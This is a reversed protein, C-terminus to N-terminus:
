NQGPLFLNLGGSPKKFDQRSMYETTTNSEPQNSNKESNEDTKIDNNKKKEKDWIENWQSICKRRGEESGDVPFKPWTEGSSTSYDRDRKDTRIRERKQYREYASLSTLHDELWKPTEMFHAFNCFKGRKCEQQMYDRCRANEFDTIPSYKAKVKLGAYFRDTVSKLCQAAQEEDAYKVFTNGIMHDGTNQMTMTELVDGHKVCEEMLDELFNEYHNKLKKKNAIIRKNPIWIHEFLLTNSFSPWNHKKPCNDGHRCAGIRLFFSCNTPDQETGYLSAKSKKKDDYGGYGGYGNYNSRGQNGGGYYDGGGIGRYTGPM